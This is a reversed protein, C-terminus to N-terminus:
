KHFLCLLFIYMFGVFNNWDDLRPGEKRQEAKTTRLNKLILQWMVVKSSSWEEDYNLYCLWFYSRFLRGGFRSSRRFARGVRSTFSKRM